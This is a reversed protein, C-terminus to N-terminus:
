VASFGIAGMAVILAVVALWGGRKIVPPTSVTLATQATPAVSAPATTPKPDAPKAEDVSPQTM